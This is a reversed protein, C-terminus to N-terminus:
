DSPSGESQGQAFNGMLEEVDKDTMGNRQRVKAFIRDLARASKAGLAEVDARSFLLNGDEDVLTAACFAARVNDLTVTSKQRGRDDTVTTALGAELADREAATLDKIRVLGWGPVDSLDIDETGIDAAALIAARSMLKPM